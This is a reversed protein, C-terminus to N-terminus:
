EVAALPLAKESALQTIEANTRERLFDALEERNSARTAETLAAAFHPELAAVAVYGDASPYLGYTWLGGGLLGGPATMGYKLPAAGAEGAQKLGIRCHLGPQKVVDAGAGARKILGALAATVAFHAGLIDGLLVPPMAPPTLTGAEAQYTLDHGPTEPAKTDGVIDIHVPGNPREHLGALGMRELASPRVSTIVVDAEDILSSLQARGEDSKLDAQIIEHGASMAEYWPRGFSGLPDGTPPEVKIVRAGLQGLHQAALPGPVNIAFNVVTIGALSTHLEPSFM